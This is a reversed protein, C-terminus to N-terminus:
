PMPGRRAHLLRHSNTKVSHVELDGNELLVALHPSVSSATAHAIPSSTKTMTYIRGGVLLVTRRDSEVCILSQGYPGVGITGVVTCGPPPAIMLKRPGAQAHWHGNSQEVAFCPELERQGAFGYVASPGANPVRITENIEWETGLRRIFLLRGDVVRLAAVNTFKRELVTPQPKNWLTGHRDLFAVGGSHRFCPQLLGPDDRSGVAPLEGGGPWPVVSPRYTSGNCIRLGEEGSIIFLPERGKVWGAAILTTNAPLEIRRPKPVQAQAKPKASNAYPHVILSGDEARGLLSRGGSGFLVNSVIAHTPDVSTPPAAAVEFPDRLLRVCAADPPLELMAPSDNRSDHRVAASVQRADPVLVEETVLHWQKRVQPLRALRQPGVFWLEGVREGEGLLGEWTGVEVDSVEAHTHAELLRFINEPTVGDFLRLDPRQLLGWRFTAQSAAARRALVVLAAIHVLRPAGLQSPGCDFLAVALPHQVPHQRALDLFLHEHMVARRAFEDPLEDAILWESQLLRDYPGRRAIGDFGDPDGSGQRSPLAEGILSAIRRVVGGLHLALERPFLSLEASWPALAPPLDTAARPSNTAASAGGAIVSGTAM